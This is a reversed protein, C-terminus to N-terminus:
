KRKSVVESEIVDAFMFLLQLTIHAPANEPQEFKVLTLKGFPNIAMPSSHKQPQPNVLTSIGFLTVSISAWAKLPQTLKDLM